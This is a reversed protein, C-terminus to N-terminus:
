QSQSDQNGQDQQQDQGRDQPMGPRGKQNGMGPGQQMPGMPQNGYGAPTGPRDHGGFDGVVALTITSALLLVAVVSVAVLAILTWNRKAPQKGGSPAAPAAPATEIATAGAATEPAAQEEQVPSGTPSEEM